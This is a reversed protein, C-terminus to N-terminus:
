LAWTKLSKRLLFFFFESRFYIEAFSYQKFLKRVQFLLILLEFALQLSALDVFFGALLVDLADALFVELSKSVKLIIDFLVLHDLLGPYLAFLTQQLLVFGQGAFEVPEGFLAAQRLVIPLM